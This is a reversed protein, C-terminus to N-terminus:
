VAVCVLVKFSPKDDDTLSSLNSTGFGFGISVSAISTCYM